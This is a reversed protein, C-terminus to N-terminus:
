CAEVGCCVAGCSVHATAATDLAKGADEELHDEGASPVCGAEVLRANKRRENQRMCCWLNVRGPVDPM